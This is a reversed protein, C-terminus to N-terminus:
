EAEKSETRNYLVVHFLLSGCANLFQLYNHLDGNFSILLGLEEGWLGPLLCLSGGRLGWLVRWNSGLPTEVKPM